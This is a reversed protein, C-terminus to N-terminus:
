QSVQDGGLLCQSALFIQESRLFQPGDRRHDGLLRHPTVRGGAHGPEKAVQTLTSSVQDM